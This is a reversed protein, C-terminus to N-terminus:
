HVNIFHFYFLYSILLMIMIVIIMVVGFCDIVVFKVFEGGCGNIRIWASWCGNILRRKGIVIIM